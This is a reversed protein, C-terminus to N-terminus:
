GQEGIVKGNQIIRVKGTTPNNKWMVRCEEPKNIPIPRPKAMPRPKIMKGTGNCYNCKEEKSIKKSKSTRVYFRPMKLVEIESLSVNPWELDRIQIVEKSTPKHDISVSELKSLCYVRYITHKCTKIIM